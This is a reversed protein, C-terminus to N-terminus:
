TKPAYSLLAVTEVHRTNPFMDVPQVRRVKYGNKTLSYLDRALTEPDCSVYVIKKPSLQVLSSLFIRSCGARPPDTFVVDFREGNQAAERMYDAADANIYVANEVGNLRANEKADKVAEGNIEVGVVSGAAGSACIGITGVGCYADLIRERGTLGAYGIATKYLKETQTPNIQYFSRPSIRFRKGCLVDEIYGSGFLVRERAGLTMKASRSVNLVVTKIEPFRECLRRTLEAEHKLDDDFCVFVVMYEGTSRSCRVLIHRLVGKGGKESYPLIHLENMLGRIFRVIENSREDNLFCSDTVAVSGTASQYIGTVVRGNGARRVAYQAKNRYCNPQEMGIIECVRCFRGLLKVVGAQKFRLQREYDMNTLQCAGCKKAVGCAENKKTM